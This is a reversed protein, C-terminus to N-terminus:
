ASPFADVMLGLLLRITKRDPPGDLAAQLPAELAMLDAPELEMKELARAAARVDHENYNSQQADWLVNSITRNESERGGVVEVNRFPELLARAQAVLSSRTGARQAPVNKAVPIM